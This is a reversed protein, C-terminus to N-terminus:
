AKLLKLYDMARKNIRAGCNGCYKRLYSTKLFVLSCTFTPFIDEGCECKLNWDILKSGCHRCFTHKEFIPTDHCRLCFKM